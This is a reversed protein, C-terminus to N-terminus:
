PTEKLPAYSTWGAIAKIKTAVPLTVADVTRESRKLAFQPYLGIALVLMVLPVVVLGDRFSMERSEVRPGTRNHM